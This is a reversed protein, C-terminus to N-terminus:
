LLLLACFEGKGPLTLNYLASSHSVPNSVLATFTGTDTSPVTLTKNSDSLQHREPLFCECECKRWQAQRKHQDCVSPRPLSVLFHSLYIFMLCVCYMFLLDQPRLIIVYATTQVLQKRKGYEHFELFYDGNDSKQGDRIICCGSSEDLRARGKYAKNFNKYKDRCAYELIGVNPVKDLTYIGDRECTLGCLSLNSSVAAIQHILAWASPVFLFLSVPFCFLANNNIHGRTGMCL